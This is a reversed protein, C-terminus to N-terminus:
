KGYKNRLNETRVREAKSGVKKALEQRERISRRKKPKPRARAFVRLNYPVDRLDEDMAAPKGSRYQPKGTVSSKPKGGRMADRIIDGIDQKKGMAM